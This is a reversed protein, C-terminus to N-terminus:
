PQYEGQPCDNGYAFSTQRASPANGGPQAGSMLRVTGILVVVLFVAVIIFTVGM